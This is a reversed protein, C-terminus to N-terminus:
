LKVALVRGAAWASREIAHQVAVEATAGMVLLGVLFDEEAGEVAWEGASPYPHCSKGYKTIEGSKAVLLAGFDAFDKPRQDAQFDATAWERFRWIDDKCGACALLSGQPLRIIKEEDTGVILSGQFCGTDAAMVGDRYVIVTM